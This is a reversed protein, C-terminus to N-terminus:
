TSGNIIRKFQSGQLHNTSQGSYMVAGHYYKNEEHFLIYLSLIHRKGSPLMEPTTIKKFKNPTICRLM